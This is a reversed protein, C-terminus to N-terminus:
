PSAMPVTSNAPASARPLPRSGPSGSSWPFAAAGNALSAANDFRLVRNNNFDAVYLSGFQDVAVGTPYNLGTSTTASVRSAFGTQGLVLAATTNGPAYMLVRNNYSDAVWLNGSSDVAIGQPYYLESASVGSSNTAFSTQGYVRTPSTSGAPYFLVRNNFTDAVYLNGSGDLAVGYPEIFGNASTAEAATNFQGNQGYVVDATSPPAQAAAPAASLCLGVLAAAVVQVCKEGIQGFRRWMRAPVRSSAPTCAVASNRNQSTASLSQLLQSKKSRNSQAFSSTALACPLEFPM